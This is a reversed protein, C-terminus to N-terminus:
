TASERKEASEIQVKAPDAHATGRVFVHQQAALIDRLARQIPSAESLARAGASKYGFQTIEVATETAYLAFVRMRECKQAHEALVPAIAKVSTLLREREPTRTAEVM